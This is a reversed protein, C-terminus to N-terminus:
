RRRRARESAPGRPAQENREASEGSTPASAQEMKQALADDEEDAKRDSEAIAEDPEEAAKELRQVVADSTQEESRRNWVDLLAFTAAVIAPGLVMGSVGFVALGGVLAIFSPVTHLRMRGAVLRAYLINDVAIATFVGWAILALGGVANGGVFLVIAAPAWVIFTGLAPVISLVAMVVGWLVPSPLGLAWFLLGGTVGDIIGTVVQGYVTANISDAIRQFVRTAEGRSMPMLARVGHLVAPRDRLLYFLIFLAVGFQVIAALSGQVLGSIDQTFSRIVKRVEQDPDFNVRDMWEVVGKLGPAKSLATRLTGEVQQNEVRSAASTAEKVLEYAVFLGPILLVLVVIVISITAAANANPIRRTVWGHLPWAVIALAIGWTLAPLFPYALLLCLVILIVTVAGLVLLRLQEHSVLREEERASIAPPGLPATPSQEKDLTSM